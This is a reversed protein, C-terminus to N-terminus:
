NLWNSRRRKGSAGKRDAGKPCAGRQCYDPRDCCYNSCKKSNELCLLSSNGNNLKGGISAAVLKSGFDVTTANSDSKGAYFCCIKDSGGCLEVFIPPPSAKLVKTDYNFSLIICMSAIIRNAVANRKVPNPLCIQDTNPQFCCNTYLCCSSPQPVNAATCDADTTCHDCFYINGM